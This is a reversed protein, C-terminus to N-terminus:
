SRIQDDLHPPTESASRNLTGADRTRLLTELHAESVPTIHTVPLLAAIDDVTCYGPQDYGLNATAAAVGERLATPLSHSRLYSAATAGVFTDGCGISNYPEVNAATTVLQRGTASLWLVGPRGLSICANEVGAGLWAEGLALLDAAGVYEGAENEIEELSPKILWPQATVATTLPQGALDVITRIGAGRAEDIVVAPLDPPCDAPLSGSFIVLETHAIERRMADLFTQVGETDVAPGEEAIDCINGRIPDLISYTQRTEGCAPLLTAPLDHARLLDNLLAGTHGGAFGLIQVSAGLERAVRAAHIGSGGPWLLFRLPRLTRGVDFRLVAVRDLAPNPNIALIM